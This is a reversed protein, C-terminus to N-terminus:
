AKKELLARLHAPTTGCCGGVISVGQQVGEWVGAAFEEPPMDYVAQDNELRPKGANPQIMVPLTTNERFLSAIEMMERPTLEGCNAGVAAAGNTELASAIDAVSNGM